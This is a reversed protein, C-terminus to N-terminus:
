LFIFSKSGVRVFITEVVLAGGLTCYITVESSVNGTLRSTYESGNVGVSVASFNGCVGSVGSKYHSHSLVIQNSTRSCMFAEGRWVTTSIGQTPDNVICEHNLTSGEHVCVNVNLVARVSSEKNVLYISLYVHLYQVYNRLNPNYQLM